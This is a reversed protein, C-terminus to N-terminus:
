RESPPAEGKGPEEEDGAYEVGRLNFTFGRYPVDVGVNRAALWVVARMARAPRKRKETLQPQGDGDLVPQGDVGVEPVMVPQGDRFVVHGTLDEAFEDPDYGADDMEEADDIMMRDLAFTIWEDKIGLRDRDEDSLRIRM